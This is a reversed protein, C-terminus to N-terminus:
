AKKAQPVGSTASLYRHALWLTAIMTASAFVRAHSSNLSAMSFLMQIAEFLNEADSSPSACIYIKKKCICLCIYIYIYVFVLQGM